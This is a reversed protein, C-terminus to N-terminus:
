SARREQARARDYRRQRELERERNAAYYARRYERKQEAITPHAYARKRDDLVRQRNAEYHARRRALRAERHEPTETARRVVQWCRNSCFRRRGGGLPNPVWTNTCGPAECRVSESEILHEIMEPWVVHAAFGARAALLDAREEELDSGRLRKWQSGSLGLERRARDDGYGLDRLRQVLDDFPYHTM